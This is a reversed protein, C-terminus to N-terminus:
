NRDKNERSEDKLARLADLFAEKVALKMNKPLEKFAENVSKTLAEM